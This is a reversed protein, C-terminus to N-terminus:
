VAGWARESAGPRPARRELVRDDGLPDAHTADGIIGSTVETVPERSLHHSLFPPTDASREEGRFFANPLKPSTTPERQSKQGPKTLLKMRRNGQAGPCTMDQPGCESRHVRSLSLCPILLVGKWFLLSQSCLPWPGTTQQQIALTSAAEAQLLGETLVASHIFTDKRPNTQCNFSFKAKPGSM